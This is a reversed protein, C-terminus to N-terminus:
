SSRLETTARTRRLRLAGVAAERSRAPAVAGTGGRAGAPAAGRAVPDGSTPPPLGPRVSRRRGLAAPRPERARPPRAAAPTAGPAPTGRRRSRRGRVHASRGGSARVRVRRRRAHAHRADRSVPLERRPQLPTRTADSGWPVSTSPDAASSGGVPLAGGPLRRTGPQQEHESRRERSAGVVYSASTLAISLANSALITRIWGPSDTSHDISPCLGCVTVASSPDYSEPLRAGPPSTRAPTRRLRADVRVEALVVPRRAHAHGPDHHHAVDLDRTRRATPHARAAFRQRAPERRRHPHRGVIRRTCSATSWASGPPM